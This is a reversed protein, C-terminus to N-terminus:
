TLGKIDAASLTLIWTPTGLQRMMALLDYFTRQYYAPSGRVIKMFRYAKDKCMFDNMANKDRVQCATLPTDNQKGPTRRWIFHSCDDLIQKSEVIYQAVFLYDLDRAFRGDVDLLRQNFYKRYTLKRERETSFTGNGYSFNSPNCLAEFHKDNMFSMPKEYETPAISYMKHDAEPNEISMCTELPGGTIQRTHEDGELYKILVLM